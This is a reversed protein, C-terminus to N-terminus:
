IHAPFGSHIYCYNVISEGWIKGDPIATQNRIPCLRLLHLLSEPTTDFRKECFTLYCSSSSFFSPFQLTLFATLCFSLCTKVCM